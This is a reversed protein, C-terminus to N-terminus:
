GGTEDDLQFELEAVGENQWVVRTWCKLKLTPAVLRVRFPLDIRAAYAIRARRESVNTIVVREHHYDEVILAAEQFVARGEEAPHEVAVSEPEAASEVITEARRGLGLAKLLSMSM